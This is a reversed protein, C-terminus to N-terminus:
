RRNVIEGAPGPPAGSGPVVLYVDSVEPFAAPDEPLGATLNRDGPWDNPLIFVYVDFAGDDDAEVELPIGAQLGIDWTLTIVTEPRFGRGEVLATYGAPGQDPVIALTPDIPCPVSFLARRSTALVNGAVDRQTVRIAHDGERRGDPSITREYSGESADARFVETSSGSGFAIRVVGAPYFGEGSVVIDYAEEQGPAEPGCIDVISPAPPPERPGCPTRFAAQGSVAYVAVIGAEAPADGAAQRAVIRYRGSPGAVPDITAELRGEEDAELVFRQPGVVGTSDFVVAVEGPRFGSGTLDVQWRWEDEGEIAPRRCETAALDAERPACPITFPVSRQRVIGTDDHETRVRVGYEGEGRQYPSIDTILNGDPDTRTPFVEYSRPTDWIVFARQRPLFGSAEVRVSMRAPPGGAPGCDPAIDVNMTPCPTEFFTRTGYDLFSYASVEYVGPDLNAIRFEVRFTGSGDARVTQERLPGGESGREWVQVEIQDDGPLYGEGRVVLRNPVVGRSTPRCGTNVTLTEGDCPRTLYETREPGGGRTRARVEYDGSPGNGPLTFAASFTGLADVDGTAVIPLDQATRARPGAAAVPELDASLFSPGPVLLRIDVRTGPEFGSGQVRVRTDGEPALCDPDLRLWPVPLQPQAAVPAPAVLQSVGMVALLALSAALLRRLTLARLGHLLPGSALM